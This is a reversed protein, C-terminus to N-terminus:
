EHSDKFNGKVRSSVNKTLFPRTVLRTNPPVPVRTPRDIVARTWDKVFYYYFFLRFTFFDELIESSNSPLMETGLFEAIRVGDIGELLECLRSVVPHVQQALYYQVDPTLLPNQKSKLEDITYARQTAAM